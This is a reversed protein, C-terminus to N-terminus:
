WYTLERTEVYTEVPEGGGEPVHLQRRRTWNGHRDDEYSWRTAGRVTRAAHGGADPRVTEAPQTEVEVIRGRDDFREVAKWQPTGDPAFWATEVTRGGDRYTFVQRGPSPGHVTLPHTSGDAARVTREVLRGEADYRSDYVYSERGAGDRHIERVVGSPGYEWTRGALPTGEQILVQEVRRGQADYRYTTRMGGENVETVRGAEDRAFRRTTSIRGTTAMGVTRGAADYAFVVRQEEGGPGSGVYGTNRGRDDYTYVSRWTLVGSDAVVYETRRGERDYATRVVQEYPRPPGGNRGAMTFRRRREVSRIPGALSDEARTTRERYPEPERGRWREQAGASGALLGLACACVLIRVM